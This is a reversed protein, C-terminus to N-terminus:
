VADVLTPAPGPTLDKFGVLSWRLRIRRRGELQVLSCLVTVAEDGLAAVKAAADQPEVTKRVLWKVERLLGATREDTTEM